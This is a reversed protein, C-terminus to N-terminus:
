LTKNFWGNNRNLLNDIKYITHFREHLENNCDTLLIGGSIMPYTMTKTSLGDFMHKLQSRMQIFNIRYCENQTERIFYARRLCTTLPIHLFM